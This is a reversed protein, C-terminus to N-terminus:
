FLSLAELFDDKRRRSVFVESGDEMIVSGGDGKVYKKVFKMNIIISKHIRFFGNACLIDEYEKLTKSVLINEGNLLYFVTYNNEAQCRVIQDIRVFEIGTLSPLAIKEIRNVNSLLLDLKQQVEFLSKQQRIKDIAKQLEIPEVPKVLYDVASFKIATIAFYDHASVFIVQLNSRDIGGLLDFGTGDQMQVDLFLLDPRTEAIIRKGSDVSEGEGVIEIDEFYKKILSILTSRAGSEDDVIVARM